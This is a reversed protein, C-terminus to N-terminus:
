LNITRFGEVLASPSPLVCVGSGRFPDLVITLWQYSEFTGASRGFRRAMAQRLAEYAAAGVVLFRPEQGAEQLSRVEQDIFDLIADSTADSCDTQTVTMDSPAYRPSGPQRRHGSGRLYGILAVSLPDM